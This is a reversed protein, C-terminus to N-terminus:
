IGDNPNHWWDAATASSSKPRRPPTNVETITRTDPSASERVPVSDVSPRDGPFAESTPKRSVALWKFPTRPRTLPPPRSGQDQFRRCASVASLVAPKCPRLCRSGPQRASPAADPAERPASHPTHKGLKSPPVSPIGGPDLPRTTPENCHLDVSCRPCPNVHRMKKRAYSQSGGIDDANRRQPPGAVAPGTERVARDSEVFGRSSPRATLAASLAQPSGTLSEFFDLSKDRRLRPSSPREVGHFGSATPNVRCWGAGLTPATCTGDQPPTGGVAHRCPDGPICTFQPRSLSVM